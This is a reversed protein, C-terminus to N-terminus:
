YAIKADAQDLNELTWSADAEPLTWAFLGLGVGEIFRSSGWPGRATGIDFRVRRAHKWGAILREVPVDALGLTRAINNATGMPLVTLPVGRGAIRKAVRGVTGDGGAVAILDAPRELISAWHDDKSSRYLVEHGEARVLNKLREGGP